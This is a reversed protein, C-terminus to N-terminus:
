LKYLENWTAQSPTKAKIHYVQNIDLCHTIISLVNIYKEYWEEKSRAELAPIQTVHRNTTTIPTLPLIEDGEVIKLM